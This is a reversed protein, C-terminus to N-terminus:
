LKLTVKALGLTTHISKGREAVPCQQQTESMVAMLSVSAPFGHPM